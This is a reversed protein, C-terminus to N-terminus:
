SMGDTVIYVFFYALPKLVRAGELPGDPGGTQKGSTKMTRIRLLRCALYDESQNTHYTVLPWAGGREARWSELNRPNTNGESIPRFAVM